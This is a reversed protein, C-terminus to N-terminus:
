AFADSYGQWDEVSVMEDFSPDALIPLSVTGVLPLNVRAPIVFTREFSLTFSKDTFLVHVGVTVAAVGSVIGLIGSPPNTMAIKPTFGLGLYIDISIGILGLLDVSAGVRIYATFDLSVGGQDAQRMGFHFGMMVHANAEVIALSVTINGGLELSGEITEIGKTDLAVALFGGGGVLSVTVLFPHFRESFALRLGVPGVFPLELAASLAINELSFAGVGASPIGLTYGATVGDPTV